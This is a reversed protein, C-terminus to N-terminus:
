PVQVVVNPLTHTVQYFDTGSKQVLNINDVQFYELINRNCTLVLMLHCSKSCLYIVVFGKLKLSPDLNFNFPESNEWGTAKGRGQNEISSRAKRDSSERLESFAM